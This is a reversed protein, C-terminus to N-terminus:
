GTNQLITKFKKSLEFFHLQNQYKAIQSNKNYPIIENGTLSDLYFKFFDIFGKM